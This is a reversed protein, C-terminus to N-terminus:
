LNSLNMFMSRYYSKVSDIGRYESIIEEINKKYVDKYEADGFIYLNSYNQLLRILKNDSTNTCVVYEDGWKDEEIWMKKYIEPIMVNMEKLKKFCFRYLGVCTIVDKGLKRFMDEIFYDFIDIFEV